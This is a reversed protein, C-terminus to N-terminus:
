EIIRALRFGIHYYHFEPSRFDNEWTNLQSNVNTLGGGRLVILPSGESIRENTWEWVNGVVDYLGYPSPSDITQFGEYNQGNFFGVPTTGNDWPDGSFLYNIRSGNLEENGWPLDWGTNGRAAKEWEHITPIKLLYHDAMGKAGFYTVDIVPHNEYGPTISFEGDEYNIKGYNYNDLIPGFYYYSYIGEPYFEDGIYYGKAENGEIWIDGTSIAEELYQKYETNTVEYKMIEYNYDIYLLTDGLGSTFEGVPILILEFIDSAYECGGDDSTAGPDYNFAQPDICGPINEIWCDSLICDIISVVDIIDVTGDEVWDCQTGDWCEFLICDIM